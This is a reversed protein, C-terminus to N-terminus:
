FREASRFRAWSAPTFYTDAQSDTLPSSMLGAEAHEQDASLYPVTDHGIEHAAYQWFAVGNIPHLDRIVEKFLLSTSGTFIVSHSTNGFDTSLDAADHLSPLVIPNYPLSSPLFTNVSISENDYDDSDADADPDGQYAIVVHRAWFEDSPTLDRTSVVGTGTLLYAVFEVDSVNSEWDQVRTPNLTEDAETPEIYAPQFAEVISSDITM